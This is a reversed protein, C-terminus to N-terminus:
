ESNNKITILKLFIFKQGETKRSCAIDRGQASDLGKAIIFHRKSSCSGSVHSLPCFGVLAMLSQPMM